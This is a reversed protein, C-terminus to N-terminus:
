IDIEPQYLRHLGFAILKNMASTGGSKAASKRQLSVVKGGCLLLNKGLVRALAGEFACKVCFFPGQEDCSGGKMLGIASARRNSWIGAAKVAVPM